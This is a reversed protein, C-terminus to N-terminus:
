VDLSIDSFVGVSGMPDFTLGLTDPFIAMAVNNNNANQEKDGADSKNSLKDSLDLDLSFGVRKVPPTLSIESCLNFIDEDDDDDKKEIANEGPSMTADPEGASGNPVPTQPDEEARGEAGGQSISEFGGAKEKTPEFTGPQEMGTLPTEHDYGPRQLDFSYRRSKKRLFYIGFLVFFIAMLIFFLIVYGIADSSGQRAGTMTTQVVDTGAATTVKAESQGITQVLQPTGTTVTSTPETSPPVVTTQDQSPNDGGTANSSTHTSDTIVPTTPPPATSTRQTCNLSSTNAPTPTDNATTVVKQNENPQSGTDTSSRIDTPTRTSMPPRTTTHLPYEARSTSRVLVVGRRCLHLDPDAKM